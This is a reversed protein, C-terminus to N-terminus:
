QAQVTRSVSGGTCTATLTYSGGPKVQTSGNLGVSGIGSITVTTGAPGSVSWSLTCTGTTRAAAGSNPCNVTFSNIVPAQVKSPIVTICAQKQDSSSQSSATLTCCGSQPPTITVSGALPVSRKEGGCTLYANGEGTISWNLTVHEGANIQSSSPSFYDIALRKQPKSWCHWDAAGSSSCLRESCKITYGNNNAFTDQMCSCGSPCPQYCGKTGDRNCLSTNSCLPLNYTAAETSPLCECGKPCPKYCFKYQGTTNDTGCPINVAVPSGCNQMNQSDALTKCECKPPCTYCHSVYPAPATFTSTCTTSNPCLTYGAPQAMSDPLCFGCDACPNNALYNGFNLFRVDGASLQVSYMYPSNGPITQMWDPQFTESIWYIGPALNDLHYWGGADTVATTNDGTVTNTATITWGPLGPANINFIGLHSVDNIKKGWVRASPSENYNYFVLDVTNHTNVTVPFAGPNGPSKIWTPQLVETVTYTEPAPLNFYCYGYIDTINEAILAGSTSTVRITWGYLGSEGYEWSGNHNLDNIKRVKIWGTPDCCNDSTFLTAGSPDAATVLGQIDLGMYSQDHINRLDVQLCHKGPSVPLPGATIPFPITFSSITTNEQAGILQNDFYVKATNDVLMSLDINVANLGACSCFCRELRYAPLESALNDELITNDIYPSIWSTGTMNESWAGHLCGIAYAPSPINVTGNPAGTLIWYSDTQGSAYISGTAHNYGTNLVVASSTCATAPDACPDQGQGAPASYCYRYSGYQLPNTNIVPRYCPDPSCQNTLGQLQAADPRMCHCGTPCDHLWGVPRLLASGSQTIKKEVKGYDNSAIMVVDPIKIQGTDTLVIAAPKGTAIGSYSAYYREGGGTSESFPIDIERIIENAELIKLHRANNVKFSYNVSGAEGTAPTVAEFYIIQPIKDSFSAQIGCGITVATVICLIIPVSIFHGIHHPWKLSPKSIDNRIGNILWQM